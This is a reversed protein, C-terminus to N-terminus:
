FSKLGGGGGTRQVDLNPLVGIRLSPKTASATLMVPRESAPCFPQPPSLEVKSPPSPECDPPSPAHVPGNQLGNWSPVVVPSPFVQVPRQRLCTFQPLAGVVLM